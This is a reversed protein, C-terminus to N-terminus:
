PGGLEYSGFYLRITTDMAQMADHVVLRQVLNAYDINETLEHEVRVRQTLSEDHVASRWHGYPKRNDAVQQVDGIIDPPM